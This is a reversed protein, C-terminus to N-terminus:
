RQIEEENKLMRNYSKILYSHTATLWKLYYNHVNDYGVAKWNKTRKIQKKFNNLTFKDYESKKM